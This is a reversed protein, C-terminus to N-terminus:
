NKGNERKKKQDDRVISGHGRLVDPCATEHSPIHWCTSRAGPGPLHTSFSGFVRLDPMSCAVCCFVDGRWNFELRRVLHSCLFPFGSFCSFPFCTSYTLMDSNIAEMEHKKTDRQLVKKDIKSIVNRLSFRSLHPEFYLWMPTQLKKVPWRVFNASLGINVFNASM